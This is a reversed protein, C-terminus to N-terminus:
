SLQPERWMPHMQRGDPLVIPDPLRVYGHRQYFETLALSAAELYAPIGEADLRAHRATLMASGLGHRQAGPDVALIMLHEFARGTPYHSVLEENFAIFRDVYHGTARKLEEVSEPEESESPEGSRPMWLAVGRHDATVDVSGDEQCERVDLEFFRTMVALRHAPEPVLYKCPELPLFAGGILKAMEGPDVTRGDGVQVGVERSKSTSNRTV